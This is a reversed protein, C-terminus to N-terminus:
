SSKSTSREHVEIRRWGYMTNYVPGFGGDYEEDWRQFEYVFIVRTLWRTQNDSCTVPLWAFRVIEQIDGLKPESKQKRKWQM